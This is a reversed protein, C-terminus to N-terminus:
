AVTISRSQDMLNVNDTLIQLACTCLFVTNMLMHFFPLLSYAGTLSDVLITDIHPCRAKDAVQSVDKVVYPRLRLGLENVRDAIGTRDGLTGVFLITHKAFPQM